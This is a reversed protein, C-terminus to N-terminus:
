TVDLRVRAARNGRDQFWTIGEWLLDIVLEFAGATEPACAMLSITVTQEPEIVRNLSSRPNEFQLMEGCRACLHYSLKIPAWAGGQFAFPCHNTVRVFLWFKEGRATRVTAQEAQIDARVDPAPNMVLNHPTSHELDFLMGLGNPYIRVPHGWMPVFTEVIRPFHERVLSNVEAAIPGKQLILKGIGYALPRFHYPHALQYRNLAESVGPFMPNYYDDMVLLGGDELVAFSLELDHLVGEVTHDGDLHCLSFRTPFTEPALTNSRVELLTMFDLANHFERMHKLFRERIESPEYNLIAARFSDIAFFRRNPGRLAAVGIASLGQFVGIELVDGPPLALQHYLCMMMYADLSFWGPIRTFAESYSQLFSAASM